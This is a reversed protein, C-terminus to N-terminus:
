LEQEYRRLMSHSHLQGKSFSSTLPSWAYSSPLSAKSSTSRIVLVKEIVRLTLYRIIM